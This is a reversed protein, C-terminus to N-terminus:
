HGPQASRAQKCQPSRTSDVTVWWINSFAGLIMDLTEQDAPFVQMDPM